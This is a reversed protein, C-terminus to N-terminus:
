EGRIVQNLAAAFVAALFWGAFTLPWLWYGVFSDAAVRWHDRQGFSVVPVITDLTYLLSSFSPYYRPVRPEVPQAQFYAYVEKDTPVMVGDRYAQGVFFFGILVLGVAWPLACSLRYGYRVTARRLRWWIKLAPGLADSQLRKDEKAIMTTRWGEIDGQAKLVKALQEYPQPNFKRSDQRDLWALRAEATSPSDTDIREYCFGDLLLQDKLPWSSEDDYLPGVNAHCLKLRPRVQGKLNRWLLGLEVKASELDVVSNQKFSAGTFDLWDGVRVGILRIEGDAEFAQAKEKPERGLFVEGTVHAGEATLARDGYSGRGNFTGGGCRLDVGINAGLLQLTGRAEFGDNLFVSGSVKIGQGSLVISGPANLFAGACDLNGAITAGALRATGDARFGDRLLLDGTVRLGDASLAVGNLANQGDISADGIWSGRLSLLGIKSNSLNLLRKICCGTLVIPFPVEIFSLDLEESIQAGEIRLGAHTLHRAAAPNVCLWSVLAARVKPLSDWRYDDYYRPDGAPPEACRALTGGAAAFVVLREAGSLRPEPFQKDALQELTLAADDPM